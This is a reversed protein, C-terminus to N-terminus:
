KLNIFDKLKGMIRTEEEFPVFIEDEDMPLILLDDDKLKGIGIEIKDYFNIPLTITLNTITKNISILTKAPLSLTIGMLQDKSTDKIFRKFNDDM